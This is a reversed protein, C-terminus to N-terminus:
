KQLRQKMKELRDQRHEIQKLRLEKFKKLQDPTLVGKLQDRVGKRDQQMQKRADQRAPGPQANKMALRDAKIKAQNQEFIAKLKAVQDDTLDLRKKAHALRKEIRQEPTLTQNDGQSGGAQAFATASFLAAIILSFLTTKLKM